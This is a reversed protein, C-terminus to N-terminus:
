AGNGLMVRLYESEIKKSLSKKEMVHKFVNKMNLLEERVRKQPLKVTRSIALIKSGSEKMNWIVKQEPTFSTSMCHDVTEWFLKKQENEFYLDETSHKRKAENRDIKSVEEGDEFTTYETETHRRDKRLHGIVTRNYSSLYGWFVIYFCWDPDDRAHLDKLRCTRVASLFRFFAEQEYDEVDIKLKWDKATNYLKYKMHQILNSYRGFLTRLAAMMEEEDYTTKIASVVELDTRASFDFSM